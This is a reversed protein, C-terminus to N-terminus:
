KGRKRKVITELAAAIQLKCDVLRKLLDNFYQFMGDIYGDIASQYFPLTERSAQLYLGSYPVESFLEAGKHPTKSRDGLTVGLFDEIYVVQLCLDKLRHIESAEAKPFRQLLSGALIQMDVSIEYLKRNLKYIEALPIYRQEHYDHISYGTELMGLILDVTDSFRAILTSVQELVEQAERRAADYKAAGGQKSGQLLKQLEEIIALVGNVIGILDIM